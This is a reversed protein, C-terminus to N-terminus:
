AFLLMYLREYWPAVAEFQNAMVTAIPIKARQGIQTVADKARDKQESTVIKCRAFASLPWLLSSVSATRLPGDPNKPDPCLYFPLTMLIGDGCKRAIKVISNQLDIWAETTDISKDSPSKRIEDVLRYMIECRMLRLQYVTLFFRIITIGTKDYAIKRFSDAPPDYFSLGYSEMLTKTKTEMLAGHQKDQEIAQLLIEQHSYREPDKLKYLWHCLLLPWYPIMPHMGEDIHPAMKEQLETLASPLPTAAQGCVCQVRHVTEIYFQKEFESLILKEGRFNLLSLTGYTHAAWSQVSREEFAIAEFLGMVMAAVLTSNLTVEKSQLASNVDKIANGYLKRALHMLQGDQRDRALNAMAVANSSSIICKSTKAYKELMGPLFEFYSDPLKIILILIFSSARVYVRIFFTLAIDIVSTRLSVSIIDDSAAAEFAEVSAQFLEASHFGRARRIVQNTEDRVLNAYILQAWYM